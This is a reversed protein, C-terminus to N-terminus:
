LNTITKIISYLPEASCETSYKNEVMERGNKGFAERLHFDKILVSLKEVWEDDTSALFGNSGDIVIDKNIGVPSAVVPIGAGMYQLLKMGCKGQSWDDGPLPMIGIDLNLLDQIETDASWKIFRYEIELNIKRDSILVFEFNYNEKLKRFIPEIGTLYRLSTSYSGTWGIIVKEKVEHKKVRYYKTNITSPLIAVNSNYKLAYNQLYRNGVTVQKSIKCIFATKWTCKLYTLLFFLLSNYQLFIADDFDYIIPIKKLSAIYEIIPLGIPSLERHLFLVDYKKLCIVKFLVSIYLWVFYLIKRINKSETYLIKQFSKDCLTIFSFSISYKAILYSSWQEIRYRQSAVSNLYYPALVIVSIVPKSYSM